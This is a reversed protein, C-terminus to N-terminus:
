FPSYNMGALEMKGWIKRLHLSIIKWHYNLQNLKKIVFLSIDFCKKSFSSIKCQSISFLYPTKSDRLELLFFHELIAIVSFM